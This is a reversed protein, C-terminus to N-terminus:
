PHHKQQEFVSQFSQFIGGEREHVNKSGAFDEFDREPVMKGCNHLPKVRDAHNISILSLESQNQHRIM